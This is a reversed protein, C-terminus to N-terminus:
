PLILAENLGGGSPLSFLVAVSLRGDETMAMPLASPDALRSLTLTLATTYESDTEAYKTGALERFRIRVAEQLLDPLREPQIGAAECFAALTPKAGTAANVCYIGLEEEPSDAATKRVRLTLVSGFVDWTFSVSALEPDRRERMADLSAHAPADFRESIERNCGMAYADPLDLFPIRYSYTFNGNYVGSESLVTRVPDGTLDPGSVGSETRGPDPNPHAATQAPAANVTGSPVFDSSPRRNRLDCGTLLLAPALVAAAAAPLAPRVRRVIFNWIHRIATKMM